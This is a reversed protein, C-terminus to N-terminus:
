RIIRPGQHRNGARVALLRPVPSRYDAIGHQGSYGDPDGSKAARPEVRRLTPTVATLSSAHMKGPFCGETGM